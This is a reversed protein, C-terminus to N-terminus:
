HKYLTDTQMVSLAYLSCFANHSIVKLGQTVMGAAAGLLTMLLLVLAAVLGVM